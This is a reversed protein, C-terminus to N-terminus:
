DYYLRELKIWQNRASALDEKKMLERMGTLRLERLCKLEGWLRFAKRISEQEDDMDYARDRDDLTGTNMLHLVQINTLESIQRALVEPIGIQITEDKFCLRLTKLGLCTWRGIGIDRMELVP